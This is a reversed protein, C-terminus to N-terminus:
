GVDGKLISSSMSSAIFYISLPCVGTILTHSHKCLLENTVLRLGDLLNKGILLWPSFSYIGKEIEINENDIATLLDMSPTSTKTNDSCSLTVIMISTLLFLAVLRNFM